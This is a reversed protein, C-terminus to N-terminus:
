YVIRSVIDDEGEVYEGELQGIAVYEIKSSFEKRTLPELSINPYFSSIIKTTKVFHEYMKDFGKKHNKVILEPNDKTSYTQIVPFYGDDIANQVQNWWKPADAGFNNTSVVFGYASGNRILGSGYYNNTNSFINDRIEDTSVNRIKKGSLKNPNLIKNTIETLKGPSFVENQKTLRLWMDVYDKNVPTDPEYIYGKTKIRTIGATIVSAMTTKKVPNHSNNISFGFDTAASWMFEPNIGTYDYVDVYWRKQENKKLAQILHHNDIIYYKGNENPVVSPLKNDEDYGAEILNTRIDEVHSWDMDENRPDNDSFELDDVDVVINREKLAFYKTNPREKDRAYKSVKPLGLPLFKHKAM